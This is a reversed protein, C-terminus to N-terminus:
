REGAITISFAGNPANGGSRWKGPETECASAQIFGRPSNHWGWGGASEACLWYTVGAQLFPRAISELVAPSGSHMTSAVAKVQFQELVPGPRGSEDQALFVTADGAKSEYGKPMGDPEIAIEIMSLAGSRAAVFAEGHACTGVAWGPGPVYSNAPGFSSSVPSPSEAKPVPATAPKPNSIPAPSNLGRFLFFCLIGSILVFTAAPLIIKFISNKM